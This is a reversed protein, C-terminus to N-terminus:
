RASYPLTLECYNIHTKPGCISGSRFGLPDRVSGARVGFPGQVLSFPGRASGSRVGFPGRASGSRVERPGWVSGSRVGFSQSRLNEPALIESIRNLSSVWFTSALCPPPPRAFRELNTHNEHISTTTFIKLKTQVGGATM